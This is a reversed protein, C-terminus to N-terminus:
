PMQMMLPSLWDKEGLTTSPLAGHQLPATVRVTLM